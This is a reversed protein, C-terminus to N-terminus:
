GLAGRDRGVLGVQGGDGLFEVFAGACDQAVEGWAFCEFSEQGVANSRCRSVARGDRTWWIVHHAECWEPRAECGPFQCHLDRAIIAKTQGATFTRKARGVDLPEGDPEFIIRTLDADCM